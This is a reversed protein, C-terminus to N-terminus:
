KDTGTSPPPPPEDFSPEAFAHIRRYPVSMELGNLTGGIETWQAFLGSILHSHESLTGRKDRKADVDVLCFSGCEHWGDSLLVHTVQHWSIIGDEYIDPKPKVVSPRSPCAPIPNKALSLM